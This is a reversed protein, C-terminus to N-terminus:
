HGLSQGTLRTNEVNVQPAGGANSIWVLMRNYLTLTGPQKKYLVSANCIGSSTSSM